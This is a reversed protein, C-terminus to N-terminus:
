EPTTRATRVTAAMSLTALLGLTAMLLWALRQSTGQSLVGFVLPGVSCGFALGSHLVGSATAAESRHGLVVIYEMLGQWSWGAGYALAAGLTFLWSHDTGLLVYGVAGLGLLSVMVARVTRPNAVRDALQGLTIRCTLGIVSCAAAILGASGPSIGIHVASSILFVGLTTSAASALAGGVTLVLLDRHARARAAPDSELGPVPAPGLGTGLYAGSSTGSGTDSKPELETGPETDLGGPGSSPAREVDGARSILVAATSIAALGALWWLVWRWGIPIAILPVTLGSILTVLPVASQKLGFARGLATIPIRHAILLNATPHAAGASVGGLVLAGSLTVSTSACGAVVLSAACAGGALGMGLRAGHREIIRGCARALTAAVAFYVAIAAGIASASIKVDDHIQVALAGVLFVPLMGITTVFIALAM